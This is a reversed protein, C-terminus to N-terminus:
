SGKVTISFLLFISQLRPLHGTKPFHYGPSHHRLHHNLNPLLLPLRSQLIIFSLPLTIPMLHLPLDLPHHTPLPLLLPKPYYCRFHPNSSISWTDHHFPTAFKSHSSFSSKHTLLQIQCDSYLLSSWEKWAPSSCNPWIKHEFLLTLHAPSVPRQLLSLFLWCGLVIPCELPL